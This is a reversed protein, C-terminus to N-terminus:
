GYSSHKGQKCRTTTGVIKQQAGNQRTTKFCAVYEKTDDSIEDFYRELEDLIRPAVFIGNKKTTAYEDNLRDPEFMAYTLQRVYMDADISGAYFDEYIRDIVTPELLKIKQNRQYKVYLSQGWNYLPVAAIFLLLFLFVYRVKFRRRKKLTKGCVVCFKSGEDNQTGCNACQM